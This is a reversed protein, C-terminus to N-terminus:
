EGTHDELFFIMGTGIIVLTAGIYDVITFITQNMVYHRAVLSTILVAVGTITIEVGRTWKM